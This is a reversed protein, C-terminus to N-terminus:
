AAQRRRLYDAVSSPSVAWSRGVKCGDLEGRRLLACVWQPSCGLRDATDTVDLYGHGSPRTIPVVDGPVCETDFGATHWRTMLRWRAVFPEAAELKTTAGMRRHEEYWREIAPAFMAVIEAPLELEPQPWGRIFPDRRSPVSGRKWGPM